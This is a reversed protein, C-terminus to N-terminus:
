FAEDAARYFYEAREPSIPFRRGVIGTPQADPTPLEVLQLGSRHTITLAQPQRRPHLAFTRLWWEVLIDWLTRVPQRSTIMRTKLGEANSLHEISFRAYFM